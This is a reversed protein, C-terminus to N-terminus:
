GNGKTPGSPRTACAPRSASNAPSSRSTSRECGSGAGAPAGCVSTIFLKRAGSYRETGLPQWWRRTSEMPFAATDGSFGLNVWGVNNIVDYVGKTFAKGLAKDAFDHVRVMELSGHPRWERGLNKFDEVLEKKKTDESIVPQGAEAAAAVQDNIHHFQADRDPHNTGERAKSNRQLAIGQRKLLRCVLTHSM